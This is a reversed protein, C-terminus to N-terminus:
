DEEFREAKPDAMAARLHAIADDTNENWSRDGDYRHLLAVGGLAQIKRLFGRQEDTTKRTPSKVEYALLRGDSLCGIIDAIGTPGLDIAGGTKLLAKGANQAWAVGLRARSIALIVENRWDTELHGAPM